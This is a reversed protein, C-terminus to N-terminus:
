MRGRGGKRDAALGGLQLIAKRRGEDDLSLLIAEGQLITKVCVMGQGIMSSPADPPPVPVLSARAVMMRAPIADSTAVSIESMYAKNSIVRKLSSLSQSKKWLLEM